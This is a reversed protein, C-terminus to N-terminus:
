LMLWADRGRDTPPLDYQEIGESTSLQPAIDDRQVPSSGEALDQLEHSNVGNNMSPPHNAEPKRPYQMDDTRMLHLNISTIVLDLTQHGLHLTPIRTRVKVHHDDDDTRHTM